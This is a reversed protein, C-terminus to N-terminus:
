KGSVINAITTLKNTNKDEVTIIFKPIAGSDIQAIDDADMYQIDSEDKPLDM